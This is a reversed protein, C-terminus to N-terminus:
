LGLIVATYEDELQQRVVATLENGFHQGVSKIGLVVASLEYRIHQKVVIGFGRSSNM